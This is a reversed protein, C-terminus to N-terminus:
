PPGLLDRSFLAPEAPEVERIRVARFRVVGASDQLSVPGITEEGVVFPDRDPLPPLTTAEHIREDNLWADLSQGVLRIRLTNWEEPRIAMLRAPAIDFVAGANRPTPTQGVSDVLQLEYGGQGPNGFEMTRLGVGSNGGAPLFFELELEFDTFSQLTAVWEGYGPRVATIAGDIVAWADAEGVAIKWGTLDHGNFLEVWGEDRESGAPSPEERSVSADPSRRECSAVPLLLSAILASRLIGSRAAPLRRRPIAKAGGGLTFTSERTTGLRHM